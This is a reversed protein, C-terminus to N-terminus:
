SSTDVWGKTKGLSHELYSDTILLVSMRSFFNSLKQPNIHNSRENTSQKSANETFNVM